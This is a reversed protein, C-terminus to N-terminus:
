ANRWATAIEGVWRALAWALLAAGSLSLSWHVLLGWATMAVGMALAAPAYTPRVVDGSPHNSAVFKASDNTTM